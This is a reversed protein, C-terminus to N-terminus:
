FFNFILSLKKGSCLLWVHSKFVVNYVVQYLLSFIYLLYQTHVHHSTHTWYTLWPLTTQAVRQLWREWVCSVWRCLSHKWCISRLWLWRESLLPAYTSSSQNKSVTSLPPKLSTSHWTQTGPHQASPKIGITTWFGKTLDTHTWEVFGM